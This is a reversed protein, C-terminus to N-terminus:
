CLHWYMRVYVGGIVVDVFYTLQEDVNEGKESESSRRVSGIRRLMPSRTKEERFGEFVSSLEVVSM